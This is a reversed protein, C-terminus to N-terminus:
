GSPGHLAEPVPPSLTERNPPVLPIPERFARFRATLWFRLPSPDDPPHPLTRAHVALAVLGQLARLLVAAREPSRAKPHGEPVERPIVAAVPAAAHLQAVTAVIAAPVLISALWGIWRWVSRPSCGMGGAVSAYTSEPASLYALAAAESVDPEFTRHPYLFPPRLAWSVDCAACCVRQIPLGDDFRHPSGDALVVAFVVRWGDFWVRTASCWPCAVPRAPRGVGPGIITAYRNIEIWNLVITVM